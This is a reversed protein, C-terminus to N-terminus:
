ALQETAKAEITKEAGYNNNINDFLAREDLYFCACKALHSHLDVQTCYGM